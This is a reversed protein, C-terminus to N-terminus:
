SHGYSERKNVRNEDVDSRRLTSHDYSSSSAIMYLKLPVDRTIGLERLRRRTETRSLHALRKERRRSVSGEDWWENRSSSSLKNNSQKDGSRTNNGGREGGEISNSIV